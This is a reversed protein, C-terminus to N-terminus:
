SPPDYSRPPNAFRLRRMGLWCLTEFWLLGVVFAALPLALRAHLLLDVVVGGDRKQAATSFSAGVVAGAIMLAGGAVWGACAHACIATAAHKDIRFGRTRGVIRLGIEEVMTMLFLLIYFPILLIITMAFLDSEPNKPSRSGILLMATALSHLAAAIGLSSHLLNWSEFWEPRVRRWSRSPLLLTRAMTAGLTGLGPARQWPSGTRKEPLSEAIPLGCEPCPGDTALGEVCYGCRECLLEADNRPPRTM